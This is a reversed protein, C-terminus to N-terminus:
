LRNRVRAPADLLFQIQWSRRIEGSRSRSGACSFRPVVHRLNPMDWTLLSSEHLDQDDIIVCHHTFPTRRSSEVMGPASIWSAASECSATGCVRAWDGSTITSSMLRSPDLPSSSKRRRLTSSASRADDHEGHMRLRGVGHPSELGPSGPIHAFARVCALKTVATFFISSRLDSDGIPRHRALEHEARGRCLVRQVLQRVALNLNAGERHPCSGPPSRRWTRCRRCSPQSSTCAAELLLEADLARGIEDTRRDLPPRFLWAPSTTEQHPGQRAGRGASRVSRHRSPPGCSYDRDHFADLLAGIAHEDLEGIDITRVLGAPRSRAGRHHRQAQASVVDGVARQRGHVGHGHSSPWRRMSSRPGTAQGDQHPGRDTTIEPPGDMFLQLQSHQDLPGLAPIPGRAEGQKGLSEAWLQVYWESFRGLCHRCLADDRAHIGVSRPSRSRGDGREMAPACAAPTMASLM